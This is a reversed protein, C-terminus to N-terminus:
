RSDLCWDAHEHSPGWYAFVMDGLLFSASINVSGCVDRIYEFLAHSDRPIMDFIRLGIVNMCGHQGSMYVRM